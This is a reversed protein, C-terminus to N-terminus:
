RKRQGSSARHDTSKRTVKHGSPVQTVREPAHLLTPTQKTQKEVLQLNPCKAHTFGCTLSQEGRVRPHVWPRCVRKARPLSSGACAPISGERMRRAGGRKVAGRARPSPGGEPPSEGEVVSQEGRVRPHVGAGGRKDGRRPSSGACAPISRRGALRLQRLLEAGRARPSPGRRSTSFRRSTFQEGRVRPHVWPRGARHGTTRSSGACAPISGHVAEQTRAAQVAGRARPSPGSAAAHGGRDDLQEGRVRPHVRLRVAEYNRLVSSGACAPISGAAGGRWRLFSGAGRARPSPGRAMSM